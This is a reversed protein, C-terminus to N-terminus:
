LLCSEFIQGLLIAGGGSYTPYKFIQIMEAIQGAEELSNASLLMKRLYGLVSLRITEPDTSVKTYLDACRKWRNARGSTIERILEIVEKSGTEASSIFELIEKPDEIDQVQELLMLGQRPCGEAAKTIAQIVDENDGWKIKENKCTSELLGRMESPRLPTVKYIACRNRITPIIKSPNTTCFIFYVYDPCDEIVKLLAQQAASTLEHSEDFIYCKSDGFMPVVGVSDAIERATDIGRFNASNIETLSLGDCGFEKALIRAFTTKGCGTQGTFMYAHPRKKSKIVQQLGKIVEKNGVVDCFKTPRYKQYLM